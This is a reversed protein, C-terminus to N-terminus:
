ILDADEIAKCLHHKRSVRMERTSVGHGFFDIVKCQLETRNLKNIRAIGGPSLVNVELLKGNIVDLGTFYLIFCIKM